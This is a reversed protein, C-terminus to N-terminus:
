SPVRVGLELPEGPWPQGVQFLEFVDELTRVERPRPAGPDAAAAPRALSLAALVIWPVAARPM